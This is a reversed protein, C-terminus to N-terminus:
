YRVKRQQLYISGLQLLVLHPDSPQQLFNLSREYSEQADSVEGRLHLCHGNLAWADVDQEGHIHIM